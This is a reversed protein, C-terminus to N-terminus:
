DTQWDILEGMISTNILSNDIISLSNIGENSQWVLRTGDPNWRPNSGAAVFREETSTINVLWIGFDASNTDSAEFAIWDGNPQWALLNRRWQKSVVPTYLHYFQSTQALRDYVVIGALGDALETQWAVKNAGTQWSASSVKGLSELKDGTRVGDPLQALQAVRQEDFAIMGAEVSPIGWSEIESLFYVREGAVQYLGLTVFNPNSADPNRIAYLWESPAVAQIFCCEQRVPTNNIRNFEASDVAYRWLEGGAVLGIEEGSEAVAVQATAWEITDPLTSIAMISRLSGDTEVQWLGAMDKFILGALAPDAKAPLATAEATPEPPLTPVSTETPLATPIPYATAAPEPDSAVVPEAQPAPYSGSQTTDASTTSPYGTAPTEDVRPLELVAAEPTDTMINLPTTAIATPNARQLVEVSTAPLTPAVPEEVQAGCAVLFIFILLFVFRFKM